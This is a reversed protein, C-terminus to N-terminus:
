LKTSFTFSSTFHCPLNENSIVTRNKQYKQTIFFDYYKLIFARGQEANKCNENFTNVIKSYFSIM